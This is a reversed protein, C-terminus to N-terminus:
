RPPMDVTVGVVVVVVDVIVFLAIFPLTEGKGIVALLRDTSGFVDDVGIGVDDDCNHLEVLAPDAEEEDDEEEATGGDDDTADADNHTGNGLFLVTEVEL